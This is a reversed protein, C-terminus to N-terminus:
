SERVLEIGDRLLKAYTDWKEVCRMGAREYVRNAGTINTADVGLGAKHMGRARLERFAHRLLVTAIGRRRFTPLVGLTDVWGLMPDEPMRTHCWAFGAVQGDVEAVFWLSPDFDVHTFRFYAWSEYNQMEPDAVHGYHDRFAEDTIRYLEHNEEPYRITRITVGEPLDPAELRGDLDIQMLWFQRIKTMDYAELLAAKPAYTADTWSVLQVKAEDPCRPLAVRRAVEEGWALLELGLEQYAPHGPAIITLVGPRVPPHYEAIVFCGAVLQGQEDHWLRVMEDIDFGPRGFEQEAEELSWDAKGSAELAATNYLDVLAPIDQWVAPRSRFQQAIATAHM